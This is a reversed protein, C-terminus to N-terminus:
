IRLFPVRARELTRNVNLPNGGVFKHILLGAITPTWHEVLAGMNIRNDNGIGLISWAASSPIQDFRGAIVNSILGGSEATAMIGVLPAIPITM